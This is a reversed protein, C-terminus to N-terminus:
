KKKEIRPPLIKIMRVLDARVISHVKKEGGDEPNTAIWIFNEVQSINNGECTEKRNNSWTIELM